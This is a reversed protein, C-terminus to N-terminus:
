NLPIILKQGISLKHANTLKNAQRIKEVKAPDYKGYFRYVISSMSDGSKVTYNEFTPIIAEEIAETQAPVVAIQPLTDKRSIKKEFKPQGLSTVDAENGINSSISLIANMIFMCLAGAIFGTLLYVGPSKEEKPNIKFNQWLLDLEKQKSTRRYARPENDEQVNYERQNKIESLFAVKEDSLNSRYISSNRM